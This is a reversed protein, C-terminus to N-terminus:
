YKSFSYDKRRLQGNKDIVFSTKIKFGKAEDCYDRFFKQHEEIHIILNEDIFCKRILSAAKNSCNLDTKVFSILNGSKDYFFLYVGDDAINKLYCILCIVDTNNLMLQALHVINTTSDYNAQRRLSPPFLGRCVDHYSDCPIAQNKATVFTEKDLSIDNFFSVKTPFDYQKFSDNRIQVPYFPVEIQRINKM